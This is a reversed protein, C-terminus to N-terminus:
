AGGSALLGLTREDPRGDYYRALVREFVSGPPSVAAFLTASSRLKLDDPSGFVETATRGEVAAAAAACERLRPGLVPHDLYARAEARSKIAYFRATPSSGLGDLQPFVYWMWHSRKRGARIEAIAQDYDDAQATVFRNLDFPDDAM